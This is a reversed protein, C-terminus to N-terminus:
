AGARPLEFPVRVPKLGAKGLTENLKALEGRLDTWAKEVDRVDKAYDAASGDISEAPAADGFDLIKLFRNGQVVLSAFTGFSQDGQRRRGGFPKGALNKLREEVATLSTAVPGAPKGNELETIQGLLDQIEQYGRWGRASGDYFLRILGDQRDLDKASAPSRPDNRVTVTQKSVQGDVTLKITYEGPAVLPGEPSPPTQGPNANIVYDHSFAHPSDMRLNWEAVNLGLEMSLPKAPEIWFNPIPPAPENLPPVPESSFHRIVRGSADSIEISIPGSPKVGLYYRISCAAPNLAHPIEPPLPTDYGVNRRVRTALGPKFLASPKAGTAADIQRLPSIDDLIWFSRGYTDVVLDDDKVLLDRISTTPLNLSLPQWHDGDDFSVYVTTDTGAFLLGKRKIDARIVRVYAGNAADAPLGETISTWTKGFDRTRFLYPANDGSSHLDYAAYAEAPDHHSAEISGVYPRKALDMKEVSAYDWNKGHDRTVKIQGNGAGIWIIGGDITSPSFTSISSQGAARQVLVDPDLENTTEDEDPDEPIVSGKATANPDAPKKGDKKPEEKKPEDKGLTLDPGLKKWHQGGDTSSMLFQYAAFLEHPNTPSFMIPQNIVKRLGSGYRINPGVEVWQGSPYTTKVIGGEEGIAYSVKPNLPDVAVSGFEYGPHPLWDFPTIEGYNGRSATSVSGSDQQPGYIWYPWQNDVTINYTQATPQNYWSSWTKGGDLSVTAGQDTGFFLRDGDTPDLWMQQPDDGGPAGKFGTFTKGGDLSRYSCTNVVYVIDPNKPNVYVGCNYGGQGNRIRADEKDMRDWTSGGDDSRYLGGNGIVFMRQANTGNAIAVCTRGSLQPVKDGKLETWTAGNDFSKYLKVGNGGFGGFSSTGVKAYHRISTAILTDPHDYAYAIKVAGIEDDIALVRAWTKGGDTTRFIGRDPGKTRLDGKAAVLVNDPNRPDVIVTSIHGTKELGIHTWTKGGDVTKYVGTGRSVGDLPSDGMGVYVIDPNSPAAELAGVSCSERISDMVPEWTMGANTTKWVGGQPMGMYFTGPRGIAGTVASVRGGRFPGVLRYSLGSYVKPDVQSLSPVAISLFLPALLALYAGKKM